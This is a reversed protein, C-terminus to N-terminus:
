AHHLEELVRRTLDPRDIFIPQGGDVVDINGEPGTSARM